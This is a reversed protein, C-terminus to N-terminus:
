LLDKIIADAISGPDLINIDDLEKKNGNAIWYYSYKGSAHNKIFGVEEISPITKTGNQIDTKLQELIEKAPIRDFIEQAEIKIDSTEAIYKVNDAALNLQAVQASTLVEVDISVTRNFDSKILCKPTVVAGLVRVEKNGATITVTVSSKLRNLKALDRLAGEIESRTTESDNTESAAKNLRDLAAIYPDDLKNVQSSINDSCHALGEDSLIKAAQDQGSKIGAAMEDAIRKKAESVINPIAGRFGRLSLELEYDASAKELDALATEAKLFASDINEDVLWNIDEMLEQPPNAKFETEGKRFEAGAAWTLENALVSGTMTFAENNAGLSGEVAYTNTPLELNFEGSLELDFAGDQQVYGSARIQGGPKVPIIEPWWSNDPKALGNVFAQAKIGNTGAEATIAASAEGLPIEFTVWSIIPLSLNFAGNVGAGFGATFSLPFPDEEVLEVNFETNRIQVGSVEIVKFIPFTGGRISKGTFTVIEDVPQIPVYPINGESSEGFSMEGLADQAASYYFLPDTYDFIYLIHGGVPPKITLPKTANPDSNAGVKLELALAIKFALYFRDDMLTIDLDWNDNLWKGTYYGLDAQVPDTIEMYGTPSPVTAKGELIKVSGDDNYEVIIQADELAIIKEDATTITLKGDVSMGYDTEIVIGEGKLNNKSLTGDDIDPCQDACLAPNGCPDTLCVDPCEGCGEACPDDSCKKKDCGSMSLLVVFLLTIIYNPLGTFNHKPTAQQQNPSSLTNM